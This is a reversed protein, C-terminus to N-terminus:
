IEGEMIQKNIIYLHRYVELLDPTSYRRDYRVIEFWNDMMIPAGSSCMCSPCEHAILKKVPLIGIWCYGCSACQLGRICVVSDPDDSYDFAQITEFGLEIRKM